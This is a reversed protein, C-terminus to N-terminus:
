ARQYSINETIWNWVSWVCGSRENLVTDAEGRMVGVCLMVMGAILLAGQFIGKTRLLRKEGEGKIDRNDGQKGTEMGTQM